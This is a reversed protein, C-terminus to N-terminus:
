QYIKTKPFYTHIFLKSYFYRNLQLKTSKCQNMPSANELDDIIKIFHGDKHKPTDPISFEEVSKNEIEDLKKILNKNRKRKSLYFKVLM